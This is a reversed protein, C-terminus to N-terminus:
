WSNQTANIKHYYRNGDCWVTFLYIGAPVNVPITSTGGNVSSEFLIRGAFDHLMMKGKSHAPLTVQLTQSAYSILPSFQSNEPVGTSSDSRIVSVDDIFYYAGFSGTTGPQTITTGADDHFNGITIFQEGGSAVFQGYIHKWGSTDSITGNTNEIQPIVNLHLANSFPGPAAVSIYAGLEQVAQIFGDNLSVYFDVDYVSGATLPTQLTGTIYERYETGYNYAIIGAYASGSRPVQQVPVIGPCNYHYYDSSGVTPKNWDQIFINSFQGFAPCTLYTEFGPNSVLNQANSILSGFCFLLTFIEKKM